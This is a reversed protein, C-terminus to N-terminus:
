KWFPYLFRRLLDRPFHRQEAFGLRTPMERDAPLYATGFVWDWLSFIVAFNQGHRGHLEVDHHWVHMRSSNLMYRLPGWDIRVNAHNLHGILTGVIAVWIM